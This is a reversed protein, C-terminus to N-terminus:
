ETEPPALTFIGAPRDLGKLDADGLHQARGPLKEALAASFLVPRGYSRCLGEMRAAINVAPGLVTFDIRTKSGVNGYLVEGFHLGIGFDFGLPPDADRASTLAEEAAKLANACVMTADLDTDNTPFVALVGDGIFKLIEGGRAEVAEAIVEFYRNACSLAQDAPLRVNLGTWDRIDSVFIAADIREIDGRTIRGDLVQRGTRPGLYAEAVAGSIRRSRYVEAIPALVSGIRTFAAIDRDSFGGKHDSTVIFTAGTGDSFRLPLALYDTAGRIKLEHLILHDDDTLPDTLRKRFPQGTTNVHAMPSGIYSSRGELGHPTDLQEPQPGDREWVVSTAATLPHLTRMSLRLRWVPAGAALLRHGLHQVLDHLDPSFRGTELVWDRITQSEWAAASSGTEEAM